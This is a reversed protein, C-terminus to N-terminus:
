RLAFSTLALARAGGDEARPLINPALGREIAVNYFTVTCSVALVYLLPVALGRVM